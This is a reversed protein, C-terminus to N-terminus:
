AKETAHFFGSPCHRQGLSKTERRTRNQRLPQYQIREGGLWYFYGSSPENARPRVAVAWATLLSGYDIGESSGTDGVHSKRRAWAQLQQYTLRAPPPILHLNQDM